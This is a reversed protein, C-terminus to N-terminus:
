LRRVAEEASALEGCTLSQQGCNKITNAPFFKLAVLTQRQRETKERRGVHELMKKTKTVMEVKEAFFVGNTACNCLVNQMTIKEKM